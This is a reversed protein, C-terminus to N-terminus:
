SEVHPAGGFPVTLGGDVVYAAGTVFSSRPGALFVIVEAVEAAAAIRGLPHMRRVDELM